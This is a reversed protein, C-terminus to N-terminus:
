AQVGTERKWTGWGTIPPDIDMQWLLANIEGRHQLEEEVLHWLMNRVSFRFIEGDARKSEIWRLLDEPALKNVFGLIFPDMKAQERQLDELSSCKRGFEHEPGRETGAYNVELWIRYAFYIHSAIDLLSPFSAGRDKTLESGPVSQLAKLYKKRVYDDYRYWERIVELEVKASALSNEGDAASMM